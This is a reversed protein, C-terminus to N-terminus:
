RSMLHQMLDVLTDDHGFAGPKAVITVERGGIRWSGVAVGLALSGVMRVAAAGLLAGATDGGVVLVTAPHFQTMARLAVGALHRSPGDGIGISAPEFEASTAIVAVPGSPIRDPAADVAAVTIVEIGRGALAAVQRRSVPHLSGVVVLVPPVLPAIVTRSRPPSAVAAAVVASPGCVLLDDSGAARVEAMVDALHQVSSADAVAVTSRADGGSLWRRVAEASALEEAGHLAAAPRSTTAPSRRDVGHESLHVPVGGVSVVGASCTRGALPHAPVLLVRRGARVYAMVESSWQGRLTSDIKHARVSHGAEGAVLAGIRIAGDDPGAHRSDLDIVRADASGAVDWRVVTAPWGLDACAAATELAGSRDDATIVFRSAGM